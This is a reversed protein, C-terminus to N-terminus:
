TEDCPKLALVTGASNPGSGACSRCFRSRSTSSRRRCRSPGSCRCARRFKKKRSRTAATGQARMYTRREFCLKCPGRCHLPLSLGTLRLAVGAPRVVTSRWMTCFRVPYHLAHVLPPAGTHQSAHGNCTTNCTCAAATGGACAHQRLATYRLPSSFPHPTALRKPAVTTWTPIRIGPSASELDQTTVTSDKKGNLTKIRQM